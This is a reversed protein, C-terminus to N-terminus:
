SYGGSHTVSSGGRLSFIAAAPTGITIKRYQM